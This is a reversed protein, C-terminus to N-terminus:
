VSHRAALARALRVVAYYRDAEQWAWLAQIEFGRSWFGAARKEARVARALYMGIEKDM